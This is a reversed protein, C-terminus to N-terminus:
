AEDPFPMAMIQSATPLRCVVDLWSRSLAQDGSADETQRRTLWRRQARRIRLIRVTNGDITFVVRFVNPRKGFHLERLYGLALDDSAKPL